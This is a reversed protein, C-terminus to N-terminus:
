VPLAELQALKARAYTDEPHEALQMQLLRLNRERKHRGEWLEPCHGVHRIAPEGGILALQTRDPDPLWVPEEHVRRVFAIEPRRRFLRKSTPLVSFLVGALDYEALMFAIGTVSEDTPEVSAVTVIERVAAAGAPTLREDADLILIWDGRAAALTLNRAYAFDDRWVVPVIKAGFTEAIECTRDTTRTDLGVIIEDVMDYASALMGGLFQEEQYAIACLSLSATM